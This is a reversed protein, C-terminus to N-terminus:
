IPLDPSTNQLDSKYAGDDYTTWPEFGRSDYLSVAAEANNWPDLM